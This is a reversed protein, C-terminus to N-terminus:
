DFLEDDTSCGTNDELCAVKPARTEMHHDKASIIGKAIKEYINEDSKASIIGKVIKEYISDDSEGITLDLKIVHPSSAEIEHSGDFENHGGVFQSHGCGYKRNMVNDMTNRYVLPCRDLSHEIHKPHFPGHEKDLGLYAWLKICFKVDDSPVDSRGEDWDDSYFIDSFFQKDGFKSYKAIIVTFPEERYSVVSKTPVKRVVEHIGFDRSKDEKFQWTYEM